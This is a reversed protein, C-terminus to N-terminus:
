PTCRKAYGCVRFSKDRSDVIELYAELDATGVVRVYDIGIVCDGYAIMADSSVRVLLFTMSFLMMSAHIVVLLDIHLGM